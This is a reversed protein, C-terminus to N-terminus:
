VGEVGKCYFKDLLWREGFIPGSLFYERKGNLKDGLDFNVLAEIVGVNDFEYINKFIFFADINQKFKAGM